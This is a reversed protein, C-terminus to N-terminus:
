NLVYTHLHTPFVYVHSYRNLKSSFKIYMLSYIANHFVLFNFGTQVLQKQSIIIIIVFKM